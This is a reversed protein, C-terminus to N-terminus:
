RQLIKIYLGMPLTNALPGPSRSEIEPRTMDFVWFAQKSLVWCQFTCIMPLSSCDLSLLLARGLVNLTTTISFSAKPDGLKICIYQIAMIQFEPLCKEHCVFGSFLQKSRILDWWCHIGHDAGSSISGTVVSRLASVRVSLWQDVDCVFSALNVLWPLHTVM